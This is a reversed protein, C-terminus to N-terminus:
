RDLVMPWITPGEPYSVEDVLRFGHNRYFSLNSRNSCELYVPINQQRAIKTVPKMLSAGIGKGQHSPDTAIYTLHWFPKRPKYSAMISQLNLVRSINGRLLWTLRFFSLLQFGLSPQYNPEEWLSVGSQDRTTFCRDSFFSQKLVLEFYAQAVRHYESLSPLIWRM